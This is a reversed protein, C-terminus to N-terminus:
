RGGLGLSWCFKTPGLYVVDGYRRGSTLFRNAQGYANLTLTSVNTSLDTKVLHTDYFTYLINNYITQFGKTIVPNYLSSTTLDYLVSATDTTLDVKM